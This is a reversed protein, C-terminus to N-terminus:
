TKWGLTSGCGGDAPAAQTILPTSRTERSKFSVLSAEFGKAAGLIAFFLIGMEHHLTTSSFGVGVIVFWVGGFVYAIWVADPKGSLYLKLALSGSVAFLLLFAIAGPVGMQALFNFFLNHAHDTTQHIGDHGMGLSINKFNNLGVGTWPRTEFETWAAQWIGIRNGFSGRFLM